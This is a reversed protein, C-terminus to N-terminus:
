AKPMQASQLYMTAFRKVTLAIGLYLARKFMTTYGGVADTEDEKAAKGSKDFM